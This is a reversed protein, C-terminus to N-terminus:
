RGPSLVVKVPGTDQTVVFRGTSGIFQKRQAEDWYIADATYSLGEHVVFSFSGDAKTQIGGAVQRFREIGDRLSIFAGPEPRGDEHVVIGTLQFPRRAAPLTMAELDRHQGGDLQIITAMTLDATGPYFTAPYVIKPDFRRVLDVGLVYRGPSIESFEFHGGADSFVNVGQINGSKGADDAAILQVQANAAPEGSSQRVVGRIQGDFRLHFDAVACARLDLIEVTGHLYRASYEASPVVTVDYKGPPVAVEYRGRDDTSASFTGGAGVISVFVEAIPGYDKRDDSKRNREGNITGLVRARPHSSDSLTQLFQLDEAADALLRTRTCIGTVLEKGDAQRTGYVLYRQGQKFQYGCSAGSDPTLVSVISQNGRYTQVDVFEVRLTRPIRSSGPPLPPLDDEPLAAISRVTGAFIADAQFVSECPPGSPPCSCAWADPVAAFMFASLATVVISYGAVRM